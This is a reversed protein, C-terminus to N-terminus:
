KPLLEFLVDTDGTQAFIEVGADIQGIHQMAFREGNQRYMIVFSHRPPWYIIEGLRFNRTQVDSAPLPEDFHYCMERGYLDAMPLTIPLKRLFARTTPNDELAATLAQGGVTIRIRIEDQAHSAPVACLLTLFALLAAAIYQTAREKM